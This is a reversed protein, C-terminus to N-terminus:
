NLLRSIERSAALLPGVLSPLGDSRISPVLIGLSAQCRGSRELLPAALGHVGLQLEDHSIAYGDARTQEIRARAADSDQLKRLVRDITKANQFALLSWGSAGQYLPHRSGPKHEVRVLHRQGLAQDVVIAEGNDISHLVVTEGVDAALKLMVPKAVSRLDKDSAQALQLVAPGITYGEEGRRIYARQALTMLLRHAVTRNIDCSRAIDAASVPGDKAVTELVKLM